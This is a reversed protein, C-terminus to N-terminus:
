KWIDVPRRVICTAHQITPVFFQRRTWAPPDGQWNQPDINYTYVRRQVDALSMIPFPSRPIHNNWIMFIDTQIRTWVEVGNVGVFRTYTHVCVYPYRRLYGAEDTDAIHQKM